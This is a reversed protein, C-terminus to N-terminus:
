LIDILENYLYLVITSSICSEGSNNLLETAHLYYKERKYKKLLEPVARVEESSTYHMLIFQNGGIIM